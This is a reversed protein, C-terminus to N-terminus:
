AELANDVCFNLWFAYSPVGADFIYYIGCKVGTESILKWKWVDGGPGRFDYRINWVGVLNNGKQRAM